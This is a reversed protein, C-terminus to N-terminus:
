KIAAEKCDIMELKKYIKMKTTYKKNENIILYWLYALIIIIAVNKLYLLGISAVATLIIISANSIKNTYEMSSKNGKIIHIIGKLIRGGDLPYIPILNFLALLINSYIILERNNVKLGMDFLLFLIVFM